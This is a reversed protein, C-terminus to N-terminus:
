LCGGKLTKVTSRKESLVIHVLVIALDIVAFAAGIYICLNTQLLRLAKCVVYVILGLLLDTVSGLLIQKINKRVIGYGFTKKLALLVANLQYELTNVSVLLVIQLLVLFASLSSCFEVMRRFINKKIEYAKSLPTLSLEFGDEEVTYERLITEYDEESLHFVTDNYLSMDFHLSSRCNTSDKLWIIVPNEATYLGYTTDRAICTFSRDAPYYVIEASLNEWEYTLCSLYGEANDRVMSFSLFDPIIYLVEAATDVDLGTLFDEVIDGANENAIVYDVNLFEDKLTVTCIIPEAKEYYDTFIGDMIRQYQYDREYITAESVPILDRLKIFTYDPYRSIISKSDAAAYNNKILEANTSITFVSLVTIVIKFTYCLPLFLESQKVNSFVKKMDYVAYDLYLLSSAAVGICFAAFIERRMFEGAVISFVAKHVLFYILLDASVEILISKFIIKWVSEGFSIRLTVEKKRYIVEFVTLLIFVACLIGWVLYVADKDSGGIIEPYSIDYETRVTHYFGNVAEESGAFSIASVYRNEYASLETFDHFSVETTESLFSTYKGEAIDFSESVEDLAKENGYLELRYNYNDLMSIQVAFVGLEYEEARKEVTNIFAAREGDDPFYEYKMSKFYAADFNWLENMYVSNEFAFGLFLLIALVIKKIYKM